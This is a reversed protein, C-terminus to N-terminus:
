LPLAGAPGLTRGFIQALAVIPALETRLVFRGLTVGLWSQRAFEALEGTSFGGEPGIAVCSGGALESVALRGDLTLKASPELFWRVPVNGLEVLGASLSSAVSIKPVDGRGSQRAAELAIRRWRSLRADSKEQPPVVAHETRTVVIRAVGLATADQIVREVRDGKSMGQLLSVSITPVETAVEICLVECVVRHPESAVVRAEARQVSLPDFLQLNDGVAVRLVKCVYKSALPDLVLLGLALSPVPVRHRRPM